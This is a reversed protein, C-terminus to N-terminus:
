PWIALAAGFAVCWINIAAMSILESVGLGYIGNQLNFSIDLLGLFMLAGACVLSLTRASKRGRMALVGATILGVALLGDPLPFSHEFALYCPPADPPALHFTFFAIWFLIIGLGTLIMLWAPVLTVQKM